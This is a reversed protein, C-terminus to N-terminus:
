SGSRRAYKGGAGTVDDFYLSAQIRLGGARNEQRAATRPLLGEAHPM